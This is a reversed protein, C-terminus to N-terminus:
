TAPWEFANWDMDEFFNEFEVGFTPMADLSMSSWDNSVAQTDMSTPADSAAGLIRDLIGKIM